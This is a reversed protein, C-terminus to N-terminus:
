VRFVLPATLRRALGTLTYLQMWKDTLGADAQADLNERVAAVFAQVYGGILHAGKGSPEDALECALQAYCVLFEDRAEVIGAPSM